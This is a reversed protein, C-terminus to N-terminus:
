LAGSIPPLLPSLSAHLANTLPNLAGGSGELSVVLVGGAEVWDKVAAIQAPTYNTQPNLVFLVDVDRLADAFSTSGQIRQVSYGADELWQYLALTGPPAPNLSSGQLEAQGQRASDGLFSLVAVGFLLILLGALILRDGRRRSM